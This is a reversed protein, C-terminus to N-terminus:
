AVLLVVLGGLLLASFLLGALHIGLCLTTHWVQPRRGYYALAGISTIVACAWAVIVIANAARSGFLDALRELIPLEGPMAASAFLLWCLLGPVITLIPGLPAPPMAPEPAHRSLGSRYSLFLPQDTQTLRV